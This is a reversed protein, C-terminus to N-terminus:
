PLTSWLKWLGDRTLYTTGETNTHAGMTPCWVLPYGPMCNDYLVCSSTDAKMEGAAWTPTWPKSTTACGNRMRIGDVADQTQDAPTGTDMDARTILAAVPGTCADHNHQLGAAVWGVGRLVNTRVCSM